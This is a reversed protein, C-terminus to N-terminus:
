RQPRRSGDGVVAGVVAGIVGIVAGIVGAVGIAVGAIAGGIVGVAIGGIIAVIVAVAGIVGGRTAMMAGVAGIVGIVGGIIAAIVAVAGVVAGIAGAGGAVGVVAIGGIIAPGIRWRKTPAPQAPTPSAPTAPVPKEQLVLCAAILPSFADGTPSTWERRARALLESAVAWPGQLPGQTAKKNLLRTLMNRTEKPNIKEWSMIDQSFTQLAEDATAPTRSGGPPAIPPPPASM